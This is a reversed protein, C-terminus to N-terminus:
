AAYRIKRSFEPEHRALVAWAGYRCGDPPGSLKDTFKGPEKHIRGDSTQEQAEFGHILKKCRSRHAFFRGDRMLKHLLGCCRIQDPNAPNGHDSLNCARADHGRVKLFDVLSSSLNSIGHRTATENNRQAGTADCALAMGDFWDEPLDLERHAATELYDAFKLVGGDRVVEQPVWLCWNAPNDEDQGDKVVIMMDILSMPKVNFDVGGFHDLRSAKCRKFAHGLARETINTFGHAEPQWPGDFTMGGHEMDRGDWFEWMTLGEPVWEGYVDRRILREDNLSKITRQIDNETVWPNDFCSLHTHVVDDEPGADQITVGANYVEEKSWHGQKPTSSGFICGGTDMTRNMAVHWNGINKIACFEDKFIAIAAISKINDGDGNGHRFQFETGDVLVAMDGDREIRGRSPTSMVLRSDIMPVITRDAADGLFLKKLPTTCKELTPSVFLLIRGPGGLVLAIDVAIEDTSTTKGSRNGGFVMCAKRLRGRRMQDRVDRVIHFQARSCRHPMYIYEVADSAVISDFWEANDPTRFVRAGSQKELVMNIHPITHRVVAKSSNCGCLCTAGNNNRDHVLIPREIHYLPSGETLAAYVRELDQADRWAQQTPM